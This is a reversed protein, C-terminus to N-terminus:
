IMIVRMSFGYLELGGWHRGCTNGVEGEQVNRDGSGDGREGSLRQRRGEEGVSSAM